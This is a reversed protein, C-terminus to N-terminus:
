RYVVRGRVGVRGQRMGEKPRRRSTGPKDSNETTYVIIGRLLDCREKVCVEWRKIETQGGPSGWANRGCGLRRQGCVTRNAVVNLHVRLM